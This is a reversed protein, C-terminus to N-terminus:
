AQSLEIPKIGFMEAHRPHCTMLIIQKESAIQKITEVAIMQREPDLNVLPDDMIIFGKRERLYFRAMALRLALAALDRTGASLMNLPISGNTGSLALPLTENMKAGSYRERTFKKILHNLEEKLPTFTNSDLEELIEDLEKQILLYSRGEAKKREFLALAEVAEEELEHLSKEPQHKELEARKLRLETYEDQKTKLKKQRQEFDNIFEDISSYAEPLEQMKSLESTLEKLESKLDVHRDILTDMSEYKKCWVSILRKKEEMLSETKTLQINEKYLLETIEKLPRASGPAELSLFEKELMEFKETGLENKLQRETLVLADKQQRYQEEKLRLDAEDKCGFKQLVEEYKKKTEELRELLTAIDENGSDAKLVIESNEFSFTGSVTNTYSEGKNLSIEKASNLGERFTFSVQGKATVSVNLKQAEFRVKLSQCASNIKSAESLDQSTVKVMAALKAEEKKFEDNLPKIRAYREKLERQSELKEACMKEETLISIRQRVSKIENEASEKEFEAVPWQRQVDVLESIEKELLKKKVELTRRKNLSDYIPKNLNVYQELCIADSQVKSLEKIIEDLQVEYQVAEKLARDGRRYRYYAELIYGVDKKWENDIDKMREPMNSTTDWRSYYNNITEDLRAKLKSVSVGGTAFSSNRLIQMITDSTDSDEQLQRFTEPLLAQRIILINEYTGRNFGLVGAVRELVEESSTIQAGNPLQLRSAKTAGWSKSLSYSGGEFSFSMDVSITDSGSVPLYQKMLSNFKAPTLQTDIFLAARLANVITSKGSENPGLVVNLGPTFNSCRDSVGAFPKLTISNIIM